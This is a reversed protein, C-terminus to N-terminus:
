INVRVSNNPYKVNEWEYESNWDGDQVCLVQSPGPFIWYVKEFKTVKKLKETDNEYAAKPKFGEIKTTILNDHSESGEMIKALEELICIKDKRLDIFIDAKYALRVTPLM